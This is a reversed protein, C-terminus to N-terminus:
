LRLIIEKVRFVHKLVTALDKFPKAIKSTNKLLLEQILVLNKGHEEMNQENKVVDSTWYFHESQIFKKLRNRFEENLEEHAEFLEIKDVGNTEPLNQNKSAMSFANNLEQISLKPQVPASPQM